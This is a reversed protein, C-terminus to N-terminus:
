ITKCYPYMSTNLRCTFPEKARCSVNNSASQLHNVVKLCRRRQLRLNNRCRSAESTRRSRWLKFIPIAVIVAQPVAPITRRTRCVHGHHDVALSTVVASCGVLKRALAFVLVLKNRAVFVLALVAHSKNFSSTTSYSILCSAFGTCLSHVLKAEHRIIIIHTYGSMISVPDDPCWVCRSAAICDDCVDYEACEDM